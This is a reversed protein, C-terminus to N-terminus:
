RANTSIGSAIGNPVSIATAFVFLNLYAIFRWYGADDKMYGMSYVHILAGIGTVVLTMLLSLEDVRYAFDVTLDGVHMWEYFSVVSAEEFGLFLMVAVGFPVAVAATALVCGLTYLYRLASSLLGLVGSVALAVAIPINICIMILMVIFIGAMLM